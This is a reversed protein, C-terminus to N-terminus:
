ELGVSVRAKHGRLQRSAVSKSPRMRRGQLQHVKTLYAAQAESLAPDIRRAIRVCFACTMFGFLRVVARKSRTSNPPNPKAAASKSHNSTAVAFEVPRENGLLSCSRMVKVNLMTTSAMGKTIKPAEIEAIMRRKAEACRRVLSSGFRGKSLRREIERSPVNMGTQSHPFTGTARPNTIWPKLTASDIVKKSAAGTMLGTVKREM